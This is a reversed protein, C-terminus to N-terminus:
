LLIQFIEDIEQKETQLKQVVERLKKADSTESKNKVMDHVTYILNGVEFVTAIAMLFIVGGAAAMRGINVSTQLWIRFRTAVPLIKKLLNVASKFAKDNLKPLCIGYEVLIDVPINQFLDILCDSRDTPDTVTQEPNLIRYIRQQLGEINEACKYIEQLIEQMRSTNSKDQELQKNVASKDRARLVHDVVTAGAGTLGGAVGIGTGVVIIAASLGLTVPLLAAGATVVASGGIAVSSGVINAINADKHHGDMKDAKDLVMTLTDNRCPCWSETYEKVFRIILDDMKQAAAFLEEM